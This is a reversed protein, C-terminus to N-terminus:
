RKQGLQSSLYLLATRETDPIHILRNDHACVAAKRQLIKCKEHKKFSSKELKRQITKKIHTESFSLTLTYDDLPLKPFGQPSHWGCIMTGRPRCAEGRALAM